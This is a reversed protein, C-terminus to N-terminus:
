AERTLIELLAGMLTDGLNLMHLRGILAPLLLNSKLIDYADKKLDYAIQAKDLIEFAERLRYAGKEQRKAMVSLELKGGHAPKSLQVIICGTKEEYDVTHAFSEGNVSVTVQEAKGLGYLKVTYTREAPLICSEDSTEIVLGATEGDTYTFQTEASSGDEMTEKDLNDEYMTFSGDAGAFVLVTLSKPNAVENEVCEESALPVIAGTKALVPINEMSRYLTLSKGGHYRAGTFVDYWDGEPLWADFSALGAAGDAPTTIPCVLLETGFYYENRAYYAQNEFPERYYLPEILLEGEEHCRYNMTYLYPILQHRLRLYRKLIGCVHSDYAWPEKVFFPNDSSHIRMIPSFVGFQIWRVFMEDSKTGHMHGGIDHSWWGYGANSATLTFYPQFDLSAWTAFTDGSFGVPYRHSGLGAYRSFTMPVKGDRGNDLYHYHNLIFLPDYGKKKSGGKQQWDLWWFDVGMKENPHHLYTFYADLFEPDSADFDIKEELAADKGLAEAMKPYAEECGRAGEAPHVNLTVHMGKQHLYDLFREPKPFYEKNWTYGTWGSGYKPDINTVHWDMDLVAVSFPVQEEEFRELLEHYSDETYPYFRSWWNGLAYRPLLPTKGSLHFFDKLCQRYERGYGWFYLDICGETRPEVWGNDLLICSSSDDVVAYGNASLLGDELEIAGDAEDLTRATGKLNVGTEGYYWTSNYASFNGRLEIRLGSEEFEAKNYVLRLHETLLELMDEKETVQYAPVPFDRNIAMRTARDEFHGTSSYELRILRSTLVTFRYNTGSVMAAEKAQPQMDLKYKM